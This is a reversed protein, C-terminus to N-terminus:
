EKDKTLSYKRKLESVNELVIPQDKKLNMLLSTAKNKCSVSKVIPANRRIILVLDEEDNFRVKVRRDSDNKTMNERSYKM